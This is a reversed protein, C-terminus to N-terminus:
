IKLVKLGSVPRAGFFMHVMFGQLGLGQFGSVRSGSVWFTRLGFDWAYLRVVMFETIKYLPRLLSFLTKLGMMGWFITKTIM